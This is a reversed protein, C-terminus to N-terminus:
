IRYAARLFMADLTTINTGHVTNHKLRFTLHTHLHTTEFFVLKRLGVLKTYSGSSRTPINLFKGLDTKRHIGDNDLM